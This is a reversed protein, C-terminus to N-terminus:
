IKCGRFRVFRVSKYNELYRDVMKRPTSESHSGIRFAIEQWSKNKLYRLIFVERTKADPIEAIFAKLQGLLQEVHAIELEKTQLEARAKIYEETKTIGRITVPHPTYPYNEDSASVCDSEIYRNVKEALEMYEERLRKLQIPLGRLQNLEKKTYM